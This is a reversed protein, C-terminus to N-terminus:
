AKATKLNIVLEYKTPAQVPAAAGGLVGLFIRRHMDVGPKLLRFRLPQVDATHPQDLLVALEGFVAGPASVSAIYVGDKIVEVAGSKLFLLGGTMSGAVLVVERARHKVVPLGALRTGVTAVDPVLSPMTPERKKLRSVSYNLTSIAFDLKTHHNSAQLPTSGFLLM